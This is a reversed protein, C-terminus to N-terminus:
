GWNDEDADSSSPERRKMKRNCVATIFDGNGTEAVHAMLGINYDFGVGLTSTVVGNHAAGAAREGLVAPRAEGVNAEGDSLLILKCGHAKRIADSFQSYGERIAGEINTSGGTTIRRIASALGSRNSRSIRTMPKIVQVQDDFAVLSLLDGDLM